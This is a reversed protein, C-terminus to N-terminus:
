NQHKKDKKKKHHKKDKWVIASVEMSEIDAATIEDGVMNQADMLYMINSQDDYLFVQGKKVMHKLERRLKKVEKGTMGAEVDYIDQHKKDEFIIQEIEGTQSNSVVQIASNEEGKKNYAIVTQTEELPIAIEEVEWTNEMAEYEMELLDEHLAEMMAIEYVEMEAEEMEEEKLQEKEKELDAKSKTAHASPVEKKSEIETAKSTLPVDAYQHEDIIIIEEIEVVAVEEQAEQAVKKNNSSCSMGIAAIVGILIVKKLQETKM